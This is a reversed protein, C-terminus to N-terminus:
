YAWPAMEAFEVFQEVRKATKAVDAFIHHCAAELEMVARVHHWAGYVVGGKLVSLFSFGENVLKVTLSGVVQGTKGPPLASHHADILYAAKLVLRELERFKFDSLGSELVRRKQELEVAYKEFPQAM